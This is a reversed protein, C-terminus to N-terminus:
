VGATRASAQPSGAAAAAAPQLADLALAEDVRVGRVLM